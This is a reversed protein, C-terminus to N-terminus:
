LSASVAKGSPLWYGSMRYCSDAMYYAAAPDYASGYFFVARGVACVDGRIAGRYKRLAARLQRHSRFSLYVVASSTPTCGISARESAIRAFAVPTAPTQRPSLMKVPQSECDQTSMVSVLNNLVPDHASQGGCGSLLSAGALATPFWRHLSFGPLHAISGAGAIPTL